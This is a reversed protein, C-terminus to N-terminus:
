RSIPNQNVFGDAAAAAPLCKEDGAQSIDTRSRCGTAKTAIGARHGAEIRVRNQIGHKVDDPLAAKIPRQRQDTQEEEAAGGALRGLKRKV